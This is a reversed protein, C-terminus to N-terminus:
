KRSHGPQIEAIAMVKKREYLRLKGDEGLRLSSIKGQHELNPLYSKHRNLFLAADKATMYESKLQRIRKADRKRVVIRVGLDIVEVVAPAIWRSLFERPTEGFERALDHVDVHSTDMFDKRFLNYSEKTVYVASHPVDVRHLVGRRVLKAIELVCIGTEAAVEIIPLCDTDADSRCDIIHDCMRDGFASSKGLAISRMDMGALDSKRFLYTLLRNIGPGGVPRIGARYLKEVFDTPNVDHLRALIGAFVYQGTFQALDARSILTRRGFEADKCSTVYGCLVVSRLLAPYIGFEREAQSISIMEPTGQPFTSLDRREAVPRLSGLGKDLDYGASSDPDALAKEALSPLESTLPLRRSYDGAEVSTRWLKRLLLDISARSYRQASRLSAEWNRTLIRRDGLGYVVSHKTVGLAYATDAATLDGELTTDSSSPITLGYLRQLVSKAIGKLSDGSKLFPMLALRPHVIGVQAKVWSELYDIVDADNDTAIAVLADDAIKIADQVHMEDLAIFLASSKDLFAQDCTEIAQAVRLANGWNGKQAPMERLDYGCSCIHPASRSWSLPRDCGACHSALLCGHEVCTAFLRLCWSKRLYPYSSDRLCAPCVVAGDDRGMQVPLDVGDSIALRSGNFTKKTEFAGANDCGTVGLANAIQHFRQPKQYLLQPSLCKVHYAALMADVKTWGNSASARLLISAASEHIDPKIRVLSM